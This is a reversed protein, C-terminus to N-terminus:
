GEVCGSDVGIARDDVTSVRKLRVRSVPTPLLLLHMYEGRPSQIVDSEGRCIPRRECSRPRNRKTPIASSWNKKM